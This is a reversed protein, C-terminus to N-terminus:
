LKAKKFEVMPCYFPRYFAVFSCIGGGWSLKVRNLMFGACKLIKASVLVIKRDAFLNLLFSSLTASKNPM